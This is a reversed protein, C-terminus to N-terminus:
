PTGALLAEEVDRAIEDGFPCVRTLNGERAVPALDRGSEDLWRAAAHFLAARHEDAFASRAKEELFAAAAANAAPERTGVPRPPTSALGERAGAEALRDLSERM